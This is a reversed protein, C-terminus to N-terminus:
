KEQQKEGAAPPIPAAQQELEAFENKPYFWDKKIIHGIGTIFSSNSDNEVRITKGVIESWKEVGAIELCRYIFHGAYNVGSHHEFSKPLYLIYGGFGQGMGGYDLHLWVTLFGRDGIDIVASKIIANRIEKM